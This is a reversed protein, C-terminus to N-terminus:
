LEIHNEYAEDISDAGEDILTSLRRSSLKAWNGTTAMVMFCLDDDHNEVLMWGLEALEYDLESLFSARISSRGSMARLTNKSIKYRSIHKDKELGYFYANLVILKATHSASLRHNSMIYGLTKYILNHAVEQSLGL